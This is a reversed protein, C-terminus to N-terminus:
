DFALLLITVTGFNNNIEVDPPVSRDTNKAPILCCNHENIVFRNIKFTFPCFGFSVIVAYSLVSLVNDAFARDYLSYSSELIIRDSHVM